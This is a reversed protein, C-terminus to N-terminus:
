LDRKEGLSAERGTQVDRAGATRCVFTDRLPSVSCETKKSGRGAECAHTRRPRTDRLTAPSLAGVFSEEDPLAAPSVGGGGHANERGLGRYSLQTATPHCSQAGRRVAAMPRKKHPLALRQLATRPDGAWPVEEKRGKM